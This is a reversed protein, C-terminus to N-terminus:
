KRAKRVFPTVTTGDPIIMEMTVDVPKDVIVGEKALAEPPLTFDMRVKDANRSKLHRVSKRVRVQKDKDKGFM